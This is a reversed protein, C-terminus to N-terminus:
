GAERIDVGIDALAAGLAPAIIAAMAEVDAPTRLLDNRIELMVNLLGKEIGNRQLSYTVGSEPGYPANRRIDRSPANACLRTLLADALRTDADHLVGIEVDRRQGFYVPTFSHVTVIARPAAMEITDSVTAHFPDHVWQARRRREAESLDRNGPIDYIESREPIADPATPPRNCDYILRSVTGAVLPAHMQGALVRALALAGPDWAVHSECVEEDLGLTGFEPPFHNSAHECLFVVSAGGSIGERAASYRKPDASM